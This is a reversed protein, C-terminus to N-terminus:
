AVGSPFLPRVNWHDGPRADFYHSYAGPVKSKKQRWSDCICFRSQTVRFAEKTVSGSDKASYKTSRSVCAYLRRSGTFAINANGTAAGKEPAHHPTRALIFSSFFSSHPRLFHGWHSLWSMDIVLSALRPSRVRHICERYGRRKCARPQTPSKNFFQISVLPLPVVNPCPHLIFFPHLFGNVLDHVFASDRGHAVFPKRRSAGRIRRRINRRGLCAPM